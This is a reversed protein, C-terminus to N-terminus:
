LYHRDEELLTDTQSYLIYLTNIEARVEAKWGHIVQFSQDLDSKLNFEFIPKESDNDLNYWAWKPEENDCDILIYEGILARFWESSRITRGRVSVPLGPQHGIWVDKIREARLLIKELDRTSTSPDICPLAYDCFSLVSLWVSHETSADHLRRCVQAELNTKCVTCYSPDSVKRISRIIDSPTLYGFIELLLDNALNLLMVHRTFTRVFTLLDTSKLDFINETKTQPPCTSSEVPPNVTSRFYAVSIYPLSASVLRAYIHPILYECTLLLANDLALSAWHGTNDGQLCLGGLNRVGPVNGTGMTDLGLM